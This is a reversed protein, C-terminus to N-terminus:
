ANIRDVRDGYWSIVHARQTDHDVVVYETVNITGADPKLKFRVVGVSATKSGRGHQNYQVVKGAGRAAGKV